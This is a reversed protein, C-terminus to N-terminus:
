EHRSHHHDHRPRNHGMKMMKMMKRSSLSKRTKSAPVDLHIMKQRTRRPPPLSEDNLEDDLADNEDVVM